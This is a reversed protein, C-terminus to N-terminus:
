FLESQKQAQPPAPSVFAVPELHPDSGNARGTVPRDVRCSPRADGRWSGAFGQLANTVQRVYEAVAAQRRPEADAPPVADAQLDRLLRECEIVFPQVKFLM